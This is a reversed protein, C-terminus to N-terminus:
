YSRLLGALRGQIVVRDPSYIQAQYDKNAPELAIREGKSMLKKLTVEDNDILAVVIEGISASDCQEILITDGDYIGADIMSDGDVELLYHEGNGIMSGPIPISQGPNSIAELPTGAAIKGYLPLNVTDTNKTIDELSVVNNSYVGGPKSPRQEQQKNTPSKLVELARARNPLRRVYGRDELNSVLRHIGSKSKLNLAIKMEEYSPCVGTELFYDQIYVLLKHQKKTLM